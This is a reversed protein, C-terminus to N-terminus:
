ANEVRMVARIPHSSANHIASAHGRADRNTRVRVMNLSSRTSQAGAEPAAAAMAPYEPPRAALETAVSAESRSMCNCTPGLNTKRVVWERSV